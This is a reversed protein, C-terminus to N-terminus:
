RERGAEQGRGGSREGQRGWVEALVECVQPDHAELEARTYPYFDNRSFYAETCEAFYEQHNTIAYARDFRTRGEADRREVRDYRGGQQAQRFAERIRPEDVGLVRDHYAHALEHLAFNPMRRCEAEFIRVNTFEVAKEMAPDRGHARLWRADPHYEARPPTDPYEPSMWLPVQKLEAVAAQPVVREIEELQKRLLELARQTGKPESVLLERSVYMTWGAVDRRERDSSAAAPEGTVAREAAPADIGSATTWLLLLTALAWSPRRAHEM